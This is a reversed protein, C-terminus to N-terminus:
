FTRFKLIRLFGIWITDAKKSSAVPGIYKITGKFGEKDQIRQGCIYEDM